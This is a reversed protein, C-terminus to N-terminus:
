DADGILFAAASLAMTDAVSLDGVSQLRESALAWDRREFAERAQRLQDITLDREVGM